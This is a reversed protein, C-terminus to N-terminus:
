KIISFLTLAYLIYLGISFWKRELTIKLMMVV